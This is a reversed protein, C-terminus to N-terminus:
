SSLDEVQSRLFLAQNDLSISEQPSLLDEQFEFYVDRWGIIERFAMEGRAGESEAHVIAGKRFYLKGRVKSRTALALRGTKRSRALQNIIRPIEAGKLEGRLM